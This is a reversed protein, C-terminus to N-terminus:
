EHLVSRALLRFPCKELNKEDHYAMQRADPMDAGRMQQLSMSKNSLSGSDEGVPPPTSCM